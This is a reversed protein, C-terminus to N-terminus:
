KKSSSNLKTQKALEAELASRKKNLDRHAMYVGPNSQSYSTPLKELEELVKQLEDQPDRIREPRDNSNM